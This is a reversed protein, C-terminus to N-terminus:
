PFPGKAPESVHRAIAMLIVGALLWPANRTLAYSYYDASLFVLGESSWDGTLTIRAATVVWTAALWLVPCAVMAAGVLGFARARPVVSTVVQELWPGFMPALLWALAADVVWTVHEGIRANLRWPAMPRVISLAMQLLIDLVLAAAAGAIAANAVRRTSQLGADYEPMEM